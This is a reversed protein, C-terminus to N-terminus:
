LKTQASPVILRSPNSSNDHMSDTDFVESNFQVATYTNNGVSFNTSTRTVRVGHATPAGAAQNTELDVETGSSDTRYLHHNSSSIYLRQKGAAPASPESGETILVSPYANDSAKM